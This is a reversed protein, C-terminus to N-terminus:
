RLGYRRLKDYLTREGIGLAEATRQRHGGCHRLAAEIAAREAEALTQPRDPTGAALHETRIVDGECLIAGRQLANSLERVNGPWAAGAIWAAADPHLRLGPRSLESALQQLLHRAVRPIDSRRARLPPLTIPFVALRHYLDLRFAGTDMLAQLDRNTAAVWRVDVTLTERGGVRRFSRSQIVRLLKVQLTLDLEGVEDLFFTGGDAEELRGARRTDAGTFAGAEHGFLESEVLTPALAACSCSVFPRQSRESLAHVTRAALEKGTGSEGLLLVSADTAAVREVASLVAEMEPAGYSLPPLPMPRRDCAAGGSGITEAEARRAGAM